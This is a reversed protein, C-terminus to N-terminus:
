NEMTIDRNYTNSKFYKYLMDMLDETIIQGNAGWVYITGKNGLVIFHQKLQAQTVSM